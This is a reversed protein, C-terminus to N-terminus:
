WGPSRVNEGVWLGVEDEVGAKGAGDKAADETLYLSTNFM